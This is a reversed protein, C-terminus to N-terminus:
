RGAVLHMDDRHGAGIETAIRFGHQRRLILRAELGDGIGIVLLEIAILVQLREIDAIEEVGPRYTSVIMLTSSGASLVITCMGFTFERSLRFSLCLSTSSIM